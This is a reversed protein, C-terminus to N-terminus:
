SREGRRLEVMWLMVGNKGEFFRMNSAIEWDAVEQCGEPGKQTKQFDYTRIGNVKWTRV